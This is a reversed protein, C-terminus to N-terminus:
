REELAQGRAPMREQDDARAGVRESRLAGLPEKSERVDPPDPGLRELRERGVQPDDVDPENRVDVRREIPGAARELRELVERGAPGRDGGVERRDAPEVGVEDVHRGPRPVERGRDLSGEGGGPGGLEHAPALRECATVTPVDPGLLEGADEAEVAAHGRRPASGEAGPGFGLRSPTRRATCQRVHKSGVKRPRAGPSITSREYSRAGWPRARRPRSRDPGTVRAACRVARLSRSGRRPRHRPRRRM